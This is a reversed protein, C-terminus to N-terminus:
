RRRVLAPPAVQLYIVASMLAAFFCWVSAFWAAYVAYAIVLSVLALRGFWRVFRHSSMLAALCTAVTYAATALADHRHPFIYHIHGSVLAASIPTTAFLILFYLAVGIGAALSIRMLRRRARDPEIRMVAVPLLLPWLMTAIMLYVLTLSQALAHHTPLSLWIGGEVLQQAGFILPIAAYLREARHTSRRLTITGLAALAM